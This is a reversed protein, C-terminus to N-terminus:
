YQAESNCCIKEMYNVVVMTFIFVQSAPKDDQLHCDYVPIVLEHLLYVGIYFM